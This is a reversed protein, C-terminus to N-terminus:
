KFLALDHLWFPQSINELAKCVTYAIPYHHSVPNLGTNDLYAGNDCM